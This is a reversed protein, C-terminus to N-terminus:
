KRSSAPARSQLFDRKGREFEKRCINLIKAAAKNIPTLSPKVLGYARSFKLADNWTAHPHDWGYENFDDRLDRATDEELNKLTTLTM